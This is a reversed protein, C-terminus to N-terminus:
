GQIMIHNPKISYQSSHDAAGAGTLAAQRGQIPEDGMVSYEFIVPLAFFRQAFFLDMWDTWRLREKQSTM